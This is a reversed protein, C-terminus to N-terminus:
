QCAGKICVMDQGCWLGNTVVSHLCGLPSEDSCSDTTCANGDDCDGLTMVACKGTQNCTSNGWQDARVFLAEDVGTKANHVQGALAIGGGPLTVIAQARDMEATGYAQQWALWGDADTRAVWSSWLGLGYTGTYGALAFGGDSLQALAYGREAESSGYTRDWLLKGDADLRLLWFDTQNGYTKSEGTEGLVAFGGDSLALVAWARDDAKTAFNKQWVVKGTATARQVWMDTQVLTGNPPAVWGVAIFGGDLTTAVATAEDDGTTGYTKEWLVAGSGSLGVMWADGQGAGASLTKGVAVLKGSPLVTIGRFGDGAKGGWTTDWTQKGTADTRVVWGDQGGAGKSGIDGAIVFGGDDLRRLARASEAGVGGFGAQWTFNGSADTVALWADTAGGSTPTAEGALAFGGGPLATMAWAAGGKGWATLNNSGLGLQGKCVGQICVDGATCPDGDSCTTGDATAPYVCIGGQCAKPTCSNSTIPCDDVTDCPTPPPPAADAAASDAKTADAEANVIGSDQAPGADPAPPQVVDVSAPGADQSAIDAAVPAVQGVDAQVVADTAVKDDTQPQGGDAQGSNGGDLGRGSAQAAATDTAADVLTSAGAGKSEGDPEATSCGALVACPIALWVPTPLRGRIWASIRGLSGFRGLRVGGQGM